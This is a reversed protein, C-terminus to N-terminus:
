AFDYPPPKKVKQKKEGNKPPGLDKPSFAMYESGELDFIIYLVFFGVGHSKAYHGMSCRHLTEPDLENFRGSTKGILTKQTIVTFWSM